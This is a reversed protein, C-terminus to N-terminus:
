WEQWRRWFLSSRKVIRVSTLRSGLWSQDDAELVPRTFTSSTVTQTKDCSLPRLATERRHELTNSIM